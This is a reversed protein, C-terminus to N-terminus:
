HLLQTTIYRNFFHLLQHFDPVLLISPVMNQSRDSLYISLLHQPVSRLYKGADYQNEAHQIDWTLSPLKSRKYLQHLKKRFSYIIKCFKASFLYVAM